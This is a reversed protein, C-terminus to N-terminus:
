RFYYNIITTIYLKIILSMNLLISYVNLINIFYLKNYLILQKNIKCKYIYIACM